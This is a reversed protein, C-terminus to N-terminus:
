VHARGIKELYNSIYKRIKQKILLLYKIEPKRIFLFRISELNKNIDEDSESIESINQITIGDVIINRPHLTKFSAKVVIGSVKLFTENTIQQALKNEKNFRCSYMDRYDAIHLIITNHKPSFEKHWLRGIITVSNGVISEDLLLNYKLDPVVM